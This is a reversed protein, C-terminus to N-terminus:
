EYTFRNVEKRARKTIRREQCKVTRLRSGIELNLTGDQAGPIHESLKSSKALAVTFAKSGSSLEPEIFNFNTLITEDEVTAIHNVTEGVVCDTAELAEKLYWVFPLKVRHTPSVTFQITILTNSHFFAIDFCGQNWKVCKIVFSAADTSGSLSLGNYTVITPSIPLVLDGSANKVGRQKNEIVVNIWEIQALEFAWGQLAPNGTMDAAAKVAKVLEARCEDYAKHLIYKSVPVATGSGSTGDKQGVVQMLSIVTSQSGVNIQLIFRASGGAHYYKRELLILWWNKDTGVTDRGADTVGEM